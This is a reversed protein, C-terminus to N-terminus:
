RVPTADACADAGHHACGHACADAGHHACGYARANARCHAGCHAGGDPQGNASGDTGSHCQWSIDIHCQWGRLCRPRKLLWIERWVATWDEPADRAVAVRRQYM